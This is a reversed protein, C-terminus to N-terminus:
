SSLAPVAAEEIFELFNALFIGRKMFTYGRAEREAFYVDVKGLKRRVRALGIRTVYGTKGAKTRVTGAIDLPKSDFRAKM